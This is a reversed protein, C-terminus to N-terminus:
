SAIVVGSHTSVRFVGHSAIEAGVLARVSSVLELWAVGLAPEAATRISEVYAVVPETRPVAIETRIDAVRVNSFCSELAAAADDLLCRADAKQYTGSPRRAAEHLVKMIEPKDDAGNTAVLAEGGSRLVRRLEQVATPIDPVHYLMHAALVVDFSTDAFPLAQIDANAKPLARDAEGLIGVSLDLATVCPTLRRLRSLYAGYGCGVDLVRESGTWTRHSLVWGPFDVHPTQWEYLAARAALNRGTAYQRKTLVDRSTRPDTDSANPKNTSSSGMGATTM